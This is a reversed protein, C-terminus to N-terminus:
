CIRCLSSGKQCVRVQLGKMYTAVKGVFLGVSGEGAQRM